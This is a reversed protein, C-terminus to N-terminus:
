VPGEVACRRVREVGGHADGMVFVVEGGQVVAVLRPGNDEFSGQGRFYYGVHPVIFLDYFALRLITGAYGM